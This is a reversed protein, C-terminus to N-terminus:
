PDCGTTPKTPTWGGCTPPRKLAVRDDNELYVPKDAQGTILLGGYGVAKIEQGFFGGFHSDTFLRTVPSQVVMVSRM